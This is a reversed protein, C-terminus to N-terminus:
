GFSVTGTGTISSYQGVPEATDTTNCKGKNAGTKLTPFIGAFVITMKATGSIGAYIGTGQSISIPGTGTFLASCTTTNVMPQARATEENLAVANVLFTGKKLEIKVYDGNTDVTGDKDISVATGYDGVAGTIVIPSRAGNSGTV